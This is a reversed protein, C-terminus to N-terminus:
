SLESHTGCWVPVSLVHCVRDVGSKSARNMWGGKRISPFVLPHPVVLDRPTRVGKFIVKLPLKAGDAAVTLDVTFSRKEAKCSKVPM